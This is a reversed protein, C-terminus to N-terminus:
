DKRFSVKLRGSKVVRIVVVCMTVGMEEVKGDCGVVMIKVLVVIVKGGVVWRM